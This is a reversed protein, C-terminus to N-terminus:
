GSKLCLPRLGRKDLKPNELAAAAVIEKFLVYRKTSTKIFNIVARVKELANELERVSEMSDQVVLNINHWFCSAWSAKANEARVKAQLGNHRRSMNAARDYRQGQERKRIDQTENMIVSYLLRGQKKAEGATSEQKMLTIFYKTIKDRLM